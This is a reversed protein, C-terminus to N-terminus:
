ITSQAGCLKQEVLALMDGVNKMSDLEGLAFRIRYQKEIATIIAIHTFSDWEPVEPATLQEHLVLDPRNLLDRFISEIERFREARNM